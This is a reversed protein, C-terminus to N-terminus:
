CLEKWPRICKNKPECWIFGATPICGYEDRKGGLIIDDGQQTACKAWIIHKLSKTDYFGEDYTDVMNCRYKRDGKKCRQAKLEEEFCYSEIDTWICLKVIGSIAGGTVEKGQSSKCTSEIFIKGDPTSCRRPEQGVVEFGADMCQKFDLIVIKTENEKPEDDPCIGVSWYVVNPDLCAKCPNQFELRAKQDKIEDKKFGCVMLDFDPCGPVNRDLMGCYNKRDKQLWYPETETCGCGKDNLFPEENSECNFRMRHCSSVEYSVYKKYKEQFTKCCAHPVELGNIEGIPIENTECTAGGLTPIVRGGSGTCESASMVKVDRGEHKFSIVKWEAIIMEVEANLSRIGPQDKMIYRMFVSYCGECRARLIKTVKIDKGEDARFTHTQFLYQMAVDIARKDGESVADIGSSCGQESISVCASKHECWTMDEGECKNTGNGNDQGM